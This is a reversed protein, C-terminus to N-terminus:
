LEQNKIGLEIKVAGERLIKWQEKSCDIVTSAQKVLCEGFVVYDVLKVINKDLDEFRYPTKGGHFNASPGLIPVGVGKIIQQIVPHNPVRVGITTGGGRVLEPVKDIRCPLVITLAGPWYPKILKEIVDEPVPLLYEQAMEFSDVLVPTAQSKPRQRIKFLREIAKENDIRCGIGFATDTPFIVIGGNEIIQIAKKIKVQM